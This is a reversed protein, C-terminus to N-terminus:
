ILVIFMEIYYVLAYVWISSLRLLLDEIVMKNFLIYNLSCVVLKIVYIGIVKARKRRNSRPFSIGPPGVLTLSTRTLSLFSTVRSLQSIKRTLLLQIRRWSSLWRGM